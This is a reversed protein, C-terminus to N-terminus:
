KMKVVSFNYYKKEMNCDDNVNCFKTGGMRELEVMLEIDTHTPTQWRISVGDSEGRSDHLAIVSVKIM